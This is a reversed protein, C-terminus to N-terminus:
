QQPPESYHKVIQQGQYGAPLITSGTCPERGFQPRSSSVNRDKPVPLQRPRAGRVMVAQGRLPWIRALVRGQILAAPVPGYSRSDASNNPNDGELWVHGDPVTLVNNHDPHHHHHPHSRQQPRYLLVQDGPLGLVRKCVTGRRHPHQVVVVDGVALPSTAVTWWQRWTPRPLDTVSICPEHWMHPMDKNSSKDNSSSNQEEFEKQRRMAQEVRKEAVLELRGWGTESSNRSSANWNLTAKDVMIIEGSSQITPTMSPGETLTIDAVYETLCYVFGVAVAARFCLIGYFAAESDVSEPPTPTPPPTTTPKVPERNFMGSHSPRQHVDMYSRRQTLHHKRVLLPENTLLLRRPLPPPTRRPVPLAQLKPRVQNWM